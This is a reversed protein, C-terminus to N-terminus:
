KGYSDCYVPHGTLNINKISGVSGLLLEHRVRVVAALLRALRDLAAVAAGHREGRPQVEPLVDIESVLSPLGTARGRCASPRRGGRYM